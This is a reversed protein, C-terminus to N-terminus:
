EDNVYFTFFLFFEYEVEVVLVFSWDDGLEGIKVSVTIRGIRWGREDRTCFGLSPRLALQRSEHLEGRGGIKVFTSRNVLFNAPTWVSASVPPLKRHKARDDRAYDRM